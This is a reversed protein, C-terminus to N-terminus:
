SAVINVLKGPVFIVKRVTGAALFRAVNADALAAQEVEERSADASVQVRGRLKGNVQVVLEISDRVLAAPDFAPWSADLVPTGHGARQWLVHCVHPVIPALMRVLIGLGEGVVAAYHPSAAADLATLENLMKMGASVVTNYQGRSMDFDAQQLVEHLHRRTQTEEPTLTSWAVGSQDFGGFREIFESVFGWFKRLFRNAGAVGSDSWELSQDPPAAFMVFLRATDAGYTDILAQPDVTNGKSKSMKAGDKLVMGQTLLRTFPESFKVLGLDRMVRTYFRSYLLHLVAHEIGGVYHDVPLWYDVRDDLMADDRGPSAFRAFYWSSEVFTDFTDTERRAQAGCRPCSTEYFEPMRALPSGGGDVVVNEPLTVPLDQEPVPVAGCQECHIIPIPAGWYRQRSVGWDRLRYQIKRKARGESELRDALREFAAEFSLGSFEGSNILVGKEVHAGQKVLEDPDGAWDSPAVVPIIPLRYKTAFEWDRQDHGPVAMIAGEGYSMLVFNAVYIPLRDGTLPHLA